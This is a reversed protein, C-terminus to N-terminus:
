KKRRGLSILSVIRAGLRVLAAIQPRPVGVM